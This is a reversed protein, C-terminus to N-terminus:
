TSMKNLLQQKKAEYEEQSIAGGQFLKHLTEIAQAQQEFTSGSSSSSPASSTSASSSTAGATATAAGSTGSPLGDFIAKIETMWVQLYNEAPPEQYVVVTEAVMDHLTQKKVTFVSIIYGLFCIAQSVWTMLCRILAQKFTVRGVGSAPFVMMGMMAKGPTAQLPSSEFVPKYMLIVIFYGVFPLISNIVLLPILMILGDIMFAVFRRWFGAYKPNM